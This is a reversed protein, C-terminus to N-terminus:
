PLLLLERMVREALDELEKVGDSPPESSLKVGPCNREAWPHIALGSSSPAFPFLHCVAPRVDYISCLGGKYFACAGSKRRLAFCYEIGFKRIFGETRVKVVNRLVHEAGVSVWKEIDSLVVVPIM